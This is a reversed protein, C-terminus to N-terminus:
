LAAAQQPRPAGHRREQWGGKALGPLAEAAVRRTEVTGELRRALRIRPDQRRRAPPPAVAEPLPVRLHPSPRLGRLILPNLWGERAFSSAKSSAISSTALAEALSSSRSM